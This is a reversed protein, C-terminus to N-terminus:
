FIDKTDKQLLRNNGFVHGIKKPQVTHIKWIYTKDGLFQKGFVHRLDWRDMLAQAKNTSEMETDDHM